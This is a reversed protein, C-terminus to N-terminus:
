VFFGLGGLCVSFGAWSFLSLFGARRLLRLFGARRFLFCFVFCFFVASDVCSFNATLTQTSIWSRNVINQQFRLLLDSLSM